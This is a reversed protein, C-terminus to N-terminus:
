ITYALSIEILKAGGSITNLSYGSKLLSTQDKPHIKYKM